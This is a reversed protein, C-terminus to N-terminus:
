HQKQFAECRLNRSYYLWHRDNSNPLPLQSALCLVYGMLEDRDPKKVGGGVARDRNVHM